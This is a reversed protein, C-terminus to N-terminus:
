LSYCAAGV